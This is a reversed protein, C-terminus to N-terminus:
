SSMAKTPETSMYKMKVAGMQIGGEYIDHNTNIFWDTDSLTFIDYSLTPKSKLLWNKCPDYDQSLVWTKHNECYLFSNAHRRSTWVVANFTVQADFTDSLLGLHPVEEDGLQVFM